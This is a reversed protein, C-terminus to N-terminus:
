SVNFGITLLVTLAFLRECDASSAAKALAFRDVDSHARRILTEIFKKVVQLIRLLIKRKHISRHLELNQAGDNSVTVINELFQRDEDEESFMALLFSSLHQRDQTAAERQLIQGLCAVHERFVRLVQHGAPSINGAQCPFDVGGTYGCSSVATVGALVFDAVKKALELNM